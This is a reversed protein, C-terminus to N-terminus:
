ICKLRGKSDKYVICIIKIVDKKIDNTSVVRTVHIEDSDLLEQGFSASEDNQDQQLRIEVGTEDVTIIKCYRNAQDISYIRPDREANKKYFEIYANDIEILKSITNYTYEAHQDTWPLRYSGECVKM